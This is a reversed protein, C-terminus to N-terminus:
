ILLVQEIRRMRTQLASMENKQSEIQTKSLEVEAKLMQIEEQQKKAVEILYCTLRDYLITMCEDTEPDTMVVNPLIPKVEEAILGIHRKRESKKTNHDKDLYTIPKLKLIDLPDIKSEELTQIDTKYKISSAIYGIRGFTNFGMTWYSGSIAPLSTPLYVAWDYPDNAGNAGYGLVTQLSNNTASVTYTGICTNGYGANNNQDAAYGVCTKFAAGTGSGGAYAGLLTAYSGSHNRGTWYGVCTNERGNANKMSEYGIAVQSYENYISNWMAYAGIAVSQLNQNQYGAQYGMCVAYNKQYNRASECGFACSYQGQDYYACTYGIATSAFGQNNYACHSGLAIGYTGQNTYGANCGLATGSSGQNNYGASAGVAVCLNSQYNRGASSGVSVSYGTSNLYENSFAGLSTMSSANNSAYCGSSRGLFVGSDISYSSHSYLAGLGIAVSGYCNGTGNMLSEQGISVAYNSAIENGSNKGISVCGYKNSINGVNNGIYINDYGNTFQIKDSFQILGGTITGGNSTIQNGQSNISYSSISGCTISYGNTNLTYCDFSGTKVPNRNCVIWGGGLSWLGGASNFTNWDTSSLYGSQTSSAQPISVTGGSVSLPSSFSLTNQKNNFTNWDTSSLYGNQSSSSQPLSLINSALSLPSSVTFANMKNNFVYWDYATLYGNTSASSANMSIINMSRIMPATFTLVEEKNNFTQYDQYSLYGSAYISSQPLSVINNNRLIPLAFIFTDAIDDGTRQLAGSVTIHEFKNTTGEKIDDTDDKTKDYLNALIVQEGNIFLNGSSVTDGLIDTTAYLSKYPISSNM